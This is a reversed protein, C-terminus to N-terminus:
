IIGKSRLYTVASSSLYKEIDVNLDRGDTYLDQYADELAKKLPKNTYNKIINFATDDLWYTLHNFFWSGKYTKFQYTLDKADKRIKDPTWTSNPTTVKKVNADFVAENHDQTEKPTPNWIRRFIDGLGTASGAIKNLIVLAIACLVAIKLWPWNLFNNFSKQYNAM